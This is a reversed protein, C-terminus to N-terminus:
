ISVFIYMGGVELFEIKKQMGTVQVRFDDDKMRFRNEAEILETTM